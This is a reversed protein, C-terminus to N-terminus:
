SMPCAVPSITRVRRSSGGCRSRPHGRSAAARGRKTALSLRGDLGYATPCPAPRPPPEIEYETALRRALREYVGLAGVRDGAADLRQMLRCAAAEDDPVIELARRGWHASNELDGIQLHQDSIAWASRAALYRLRAREEELWCEFAPAGSLFFGPLLDGRYLSLAREFTGASIASRFERVDSWVLDARVEVITATGSLCREGLARRLYYLTQRLAARAHRDDLDPWLLGLLTDRSPFQSPQAALYALLALRKPQGLVSRLPRGRTGRLDISGLMRLEIM